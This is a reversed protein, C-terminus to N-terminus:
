RESFAPRGASRPKGSYETDSQWSREAGAEDPLCKDLLEVAVHVSFLAEGPRPSVGVVSLNHNACAATSRSRRHSPDRLALDYDGHQLLEDSPAAIARVLGLALWRQIADAPSTSGM